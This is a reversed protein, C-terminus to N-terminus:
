YTGRFADQGRVYATNTQQPNRNVLPRAFLPHKMSRVEHEVEFLARNTKPDVIKQFRWEHADTEMTVLGRELLKNYPTSFDAIYVEIHHGDYPPIPARTETFILRQGRGIPV